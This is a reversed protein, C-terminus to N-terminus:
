PTRCTRPDIRNVVEVLWISREGDFSSLSLNRSQKPMDTKGCGKSKGDEMAGQIEIM